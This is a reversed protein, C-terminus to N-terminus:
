DHIFLSHLLLFLIVCISIIVSLYVLVSRDKRRIAIIGTIFAIIEALASIAVTIDWWHGDGFTVRGFFIFTFFVLNLLVFLITLGVSCKGSLTVPLKM